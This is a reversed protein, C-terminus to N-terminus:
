KADRYVGVLRNSCRSLEKFTHRYLRFDRLYSRSKGAILCYGRLKTVSSFQHIKKKYNMLKEIKSTVRCYAEGSFARALCNKQLIADNNTKKLWFNLTKYYRDGRSGVNGWIRNKMPFFFSLPKGKEDKPTVRPWPRVDQPIRIKSRKKM